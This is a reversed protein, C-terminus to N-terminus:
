VIFPFYARPLHRELRYNQVGPRRKVVIFQGPVVTMHVAIRYVVPGPFHDVPDLSPLFLDILRDGDM